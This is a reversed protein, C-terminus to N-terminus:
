PTPRRVGVSVGLQFTVLNADSRTPTFTISGDPNDQIDGKRLYEVQGNGNYRIGVDLLVPTRRSALPVLIGGGGGWQFTYDSFNTTSAFPQNDNSGEVKSSTGFYSGGIAANAYPRIAGHHAMLQPGVNIYGISNTTNLDLEIRCGVGGGFCVRKTESGYVIFGGDARLALPSAPAVPWVINGSLGAGNRVYERFEGVPRAYMGQVGVYLAVPQVPGDPGIMRQAHAPLAALCALVGAAAAISRTM